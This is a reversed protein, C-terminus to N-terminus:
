ASQFLSLISIICMIVETHRLLNFIDRIINLILVNIKILVSNVLNETPTPMRSVHLVSKCSRIMESLSSAQSWLLLKTILITIIYINIKFSVFFLLVVCGPTGWFRISIRVFLDFRYWYYVYVHGSAHSRSHVGTLSIGIIYLSAMYVTM